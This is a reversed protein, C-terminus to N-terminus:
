YRGSPPVTKKGSKCLRYLFADFLLEIDGSSSKIIRDIESLECLRQELEPVSFRRAQEGTKLKVFHFFHNLGLGEAIEKESLGEEQLVRVRLLTFLHRVLMHVPGVANRETELLDKMIMLADHLRKEGVAQLWQFVNKARADVVEEIDRATFPKGAPVFIDLKDLESDLEALSPGVCDFLLQASVMDIRRNYRDRTRRTIWAPIKEPYPVKFEATQANKRIAQWAKQRRDISGAELLLCTTPNPSLVYQAIEALGRAPIRDAHRIVVMRHEAMMPLAMLRTVTEEPSVDNGSLVDLNFGQLEKPITERVAKEIYTDKSVTDDGYILQVPIM